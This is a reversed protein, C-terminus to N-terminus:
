KAKAVDQKRLPLDKRFVPSNPPIPADVPTGFGFVAADVVKQKDTAYNLALRFKPDNFPKRENHVIVADFSGTPAGEVVVEGGARQLDKIQDPPVRYWIDIEGRRLATAAVLAEPFVRYVIEDLYPQDKVFYKDNRVVRIKDGVVLEAFKFPGTGVPKESLSGFSDKPAIKAQIAGVAKPLESYPTNLMLEVTNADPATIGQIVALQARGISGTAPDQVRKLSAVVDEANLERGDHFLVGKRLTFTWKTLDDSSKWSEALDPVVKGDPLIRTLANFMWFTHLYDDASATRHPDLQRPSSLTGITLTGGRKLGAPAAQPAPAQAQPPATPPQAPAPAQAAPKAPEPAKAAPAPETKQAPAPGPPASSCALLLPVMAVIATFRLSETWM